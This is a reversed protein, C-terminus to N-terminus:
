PTEPPTLGVIRRVALGATRARRVCDDTGRGGPFALVSGNLETVMDVMAQNRRPGASPGHVNWLAAVRAYHVGNKRCWCLVAHDVGTPCDGVVFVLKESPGCEHLTAELLRRRAVSTADSSFSKVSPWDRGGTVLIYRTM